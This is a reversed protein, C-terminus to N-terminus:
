THQMSWNFGGGVAAPAARSTTAPQRKPYTTQHTATSWAMNLLPVFPPPVRRRMPLSRHGVRHGRAHLREDDGKHCGSRRRRWGVFHRYEKEGLETEITTDQPM